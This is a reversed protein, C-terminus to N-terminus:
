KDQDCWSEMVASRQLRPPNLSVDLGEVEWMMWQKQVRRQQPASCGERRRRREWLLEKSEGVATQVLEPRSGSGNGAAWEQTETRCAQAASGLSARCSGHLDQQKQMAKLYKAWNEPGLCSQRHVPSPSGLIETHASSSLGLASCLASCPRHTQCCPPRVPCRQSATHGLGGITPPLVEPPDLFPLASTQGDHPMGTLHHCLQAWNGRHPMLHLKTGRRM